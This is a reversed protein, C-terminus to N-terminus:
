ISTLAAGATRKSGEGNAGRDAEFIKQFRYNLLTNLNASAVLYISRREAM